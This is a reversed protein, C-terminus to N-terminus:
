LLTYRNDGPCTLVVVVVTCRKCWVLVVYPIGRMVNQRFKNNWPWSHYLGKTHMYMVIDHPRSVCHSRIHELTIDEWGQSHSPMM